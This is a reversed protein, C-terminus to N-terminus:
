RDPGFESVLRDAQERQESTLTADATDNLISMVLYYETENRIRGRKIIKPIPDWIRTRTVQLSPAGRSRLFAEAQMVQEPSLDKTWELMDGVTQRLGRRQSSSLTAPLADMTRAFEPGFAYQGPSLTDLFEVLARIFLKDSEVTDTKSGAM